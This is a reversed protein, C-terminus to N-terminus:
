VRIGSGPGKADSAFGSVVPPRPSTCSFSYWPSCSLLHLLTLFCPSIYSQSGKCHQRTEAIKQWRVYHRLATTTDDICRWKSTTRGGAFLTFRYHKHRLVVCKWLSLINIMVVKFVFCTYNICICIRLHTNLDHLLIKVGVNTNWPSNKHNSLM